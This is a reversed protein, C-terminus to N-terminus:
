FDLFANIEDICKEVLKISNYNSYNQEFYKIFIRKM